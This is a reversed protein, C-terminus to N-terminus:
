ARPAAKSPIRFAEWAGIAYFVIDMIGFSSTYIPLLKAPSILAPLVEDPREKAFFTHVMHNVMLYEGLAMSLVAIILSLVALQMGGGGAGKVAALGVLWGVGVAVLGLKIDTLAVFGYWVFAGVVGAAAGLLVGMFPFEPDAVIALPRPAPEEESFAPTALKAKLETVCSACYDSGDLSERCQGCIPRHCRTCTSVAAVGSHTACDM